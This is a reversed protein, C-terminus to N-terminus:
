ASCFGLAVFASAGAIREEIVEVWAEGPSLHSDIWAPLEEREMFAAIQQGLGTGHAYSYFTYGGVAPGGYRKCSSILGRDSVTMVEVVQATNVRYVMALGDTGKCVSDLTADVYQMRALRAAWDDRIQRRGDLRVERYQASSWVPSILVANEEFFRALRDADRANICAVFDRGWNDSM